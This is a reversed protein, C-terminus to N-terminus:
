VPVSEIVSHREDKDYYTVTRDKMNVRYHSVGAAATEAIWEVYNTQAKQHRILAEKVALESFSEAVTSPQFYKPAPEELKGSPCFYTAEYNALKVEYSTVGAEELAAFTKPYPWHNEKSQNLISKIQDIQSM